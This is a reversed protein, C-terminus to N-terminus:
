LNAILLDLNDDAAPKQSAIFEGWWDLMERRQTLYQAANYTDRVKNEDTHALQAEIANTDFGEEHCITSFTSRFGHMTAESKYGMRYLAFLMTNESMPRGQRVGKVLYGPGGSLEKLRQVIEIARPCLPVTHDRKRKMRAAPIRWVANELDFEGDRLAERFQTTRVTTLIVLEISLKTQETASSEEALRSFFEPLKARPLSARHEAQPKRTMVKRLLLAPNSVCTEYAVGFEFARTLWARFEHAKHVSEEEVGELLLRVQRVQVDHALTRELETGQIYEEFARMVRRQYRLGWTAASKEFWTVYLEGLTLPNLIGEVALSEQSKADAAGMTKSPDRGDALLKKAARMLERAQAVGVDPFTGHTLTKEKGEFRYKQKWTKKGTPRVLLFLGEADTMKFQKDAPKALRCQRDTLM